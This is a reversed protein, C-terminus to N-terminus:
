WLDDLDNAPEVVVPAPPIPQSKGESGDNGYLVAQFLAIRDAKDLLNLRTSVATAAMFRKFFVPSLTTILNVEERTFSEFTSDAEMVPANTLDSGGLRFGYECMLLDFAARDEVLVLYDDDTDTPAPNCTRRSGVPKIELCVNRIGEPIIQQMM